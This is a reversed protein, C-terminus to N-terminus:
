TAIELFQKFSVNAISGFFGGGGGKFVLGLSSFTEYSLVEEYTGDASREVGFSPPIKAQVNGSIYNVVDFVTLYKGLAVSAIGADRLEKAAGPAGNGHAQNNSSTWGGENFWDDLGNEFTGDAIREEGIWGDLGAGAGLTFLEADDSDINVAAGNSGNTGSDVLVLNAVWDEKIEYNRLIVSSREHEFNSLIGRFTTTVANDSAIFNIIQTATISTFVLTHQKGDFPVAAAVGATKSVGDVTFSTNFASTSFEVSGDTKLEISAGLTDGDTIFMDQATSTTANVRILDGVALDIDTDPTFHMNFAPDLTTFNREIAGSTVVINNSSVAPLSSGTANIATVESTIANGIDASVSVYNILTAGSIPTGARLWRYTFSTPTNDWTGNTTTLTSGEEADGSVLPLVTNVPIPLASIKSYTVVYSIERTVIERNGETEFVGDSDNSIHSRRLFYTDIVGRKDLIYAKVAEAVADVQRKIDREKNRVAQQRSRLKQLNVQQYITISLTEFQLNDHSDLNNETDGTDSEITIAPFSSIANAKSNLFDEFEFFMDFVRTDVLANITSEAIFDDVLSARFSM